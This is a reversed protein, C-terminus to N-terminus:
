SIDPRVPIQTLSVRSGQPAFMFRVGLIVATDQQPIRVFFRRGLFAGIVLRRKCAPVLLAYLKMDAVPLSVCRSCTGVAAAMTREDCREHM